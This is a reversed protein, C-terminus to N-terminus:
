AGVGTEQKDEWGSGALEAALEGQRAAAAAIQQTTVAVSRSGEYSNRGRWSGRGRRAGIAGKPAKVLRLAPTPAEVLRVQPPGRRLQM